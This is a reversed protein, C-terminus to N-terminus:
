HANSVLSQQGDRGKQGAFSQQREGRGRGGRGRGKGDGKAYVALCVSAESESIEHMTCSSKEKIHVSCLLRGHVMCPINVRIHMTCLHETGSQCTYDEHVMCPSKQSQACRCLGWNLIFGQISGLFNLQRRLFNLGNPFCKWHKM